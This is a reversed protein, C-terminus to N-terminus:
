KLRKNISEVRKCWWAIAQKRFVNGKNAPCTSCDTQKECYHIDLAETNAVWGCYSDTTFDQERVIIFNELSLDEELMLEVKKM